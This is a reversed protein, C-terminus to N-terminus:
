DGVKGAPLETSQVDLPLAPGGRGFEIELGEGPDLKVDPGRQLLLFAASAGVGFYRAKSSGVATGGALEALDDGFKAALGAAGIQTLLRKKGLNPHLEGEANLTVAKNEVSVLNVEVRRASGNPLVVRNFVMFVSGRRMRRQARATALRGEFITGKPLLIRGDIAVPEDLSAQFVSGSPMRSSISSHLKLRARVGELPVLLDDTPLSEDSTVGSVPLRPARRVSLRPADPARKDAASQEPNSQQSWCAGLVLLIFCATTLSKSM